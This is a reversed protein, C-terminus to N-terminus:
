LPPPPDGIPYLGGEEEEEAEEDDEEMRREILGDTAGLEFPAAYKAAVGEPLPPLVLLLLRLYLGVLM